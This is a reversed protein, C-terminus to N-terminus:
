EWTRQLNTDMDEKKLIKIFNCTAFEVRSCILDTRLEMFDVWTQLEM